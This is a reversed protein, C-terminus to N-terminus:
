TAAGQGKIPVVKSDRRRPKPKKLEAVEAELQKIRQVARVLDLTVTDRQNQVVVLMANAAPDTHTLM